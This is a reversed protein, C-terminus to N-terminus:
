AQSLRRPAPPFPHHHRGGGHSPTDLPGTSAPTTPQGPWRTGPDWATNASCALRLLIWGIGRAAPFATHIFSVGPGKPPPWSILARGKDRKDQSHTATTLKEKLAGIAKGHIVYGIVRKNENNTM